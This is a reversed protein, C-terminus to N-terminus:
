RMLAAGGDSTSSAIVLAIRQDLAAAWLATKGLRSVGLVGIREADVDADTVLYDVVRHVAWAWAGITGWEDVAPETAGDKLYLGRVGYAVSDRSDPDVGTC